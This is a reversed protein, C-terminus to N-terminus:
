GDDRTKGDFKKKLEIKAKEILLKATLPYKWGFINYVEEVDISTSTEFIDEKRKAKDVRASFREAGDICRQDLVNHLMELTHRMVVYDEYNSKSIKM